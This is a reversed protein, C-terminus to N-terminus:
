LGILVDVMVSRPGGFQAALLAGTCRTWTLLFVDRPGSYRDREYSTAQM